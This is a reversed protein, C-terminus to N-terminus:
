KLRYIYAEDVYYRLDGIHYARKPFEGKTLCKERLFTMLLHNTGHLSINSLHGSLQNDPIQSLIPRIKRYSELIGEKDVGPSVLVLRWSNRELKYTWLAAQVCFDAEDLCRLVEAGWEIMEKTLPEKAIIREIVVVEKDM